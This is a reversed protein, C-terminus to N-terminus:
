GLTGMGFFRVIYILAIVPIGGGSIPLEINKKKKKKVRIDDRPLYRKETEEM